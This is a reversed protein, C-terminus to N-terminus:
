KTTSRKMRMASFERVLHQCNHKLLNYEKGKFADIMEVFESADIEEGVLCKINYKEPDVKFCRQDMVDVPMEKFLLGFESFEFAYEKEHQQQNNNNTTTTTPSCEPTSSPSSSPSSSDFPTAKLGIFWHEVPMDVVAETVVSLAKAVESQPFSYIGVCTFKSGKWELLKKKSEEAHIQQWEFRSRNDSLEHKHHRAFISTFTFGSLSM